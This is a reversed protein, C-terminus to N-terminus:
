PAQRTVGQLYARVVEYEADNAAAFPNFGANELIRRGEPRDPLSLIANRLAERDRMPVRPHAAILSHPIAPSRGVEHFQVQMKKQFFRIPFEATGCANVRGVLVQQLCSDHSRVHLLQLDKAPDIGHQLL